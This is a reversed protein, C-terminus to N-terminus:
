PYEAFASPGLAFSVRDRGCRKSHYMAADACELLDSATRADPPYAAVGVSARVPISIGFDAARVSCCFKQAREIAAIKQVGLLLACFEDGGNRGVVDAGPATSARLLSAMRQLVADGTGHGYRDNVQKFRDTDVFWLALQGVGRARATDVARVLHARFARPTLLGTLGDYTADEFYRQREVALALPGAALRALRALVAAAPFGDRSTAGVYAVGLLEHGDVLAFSTASRDGPFAAVGGDRLEARHRNTACRALLSASDALSLRSGEFAGARAGSAHVFALADGDNLCGAFVDVRPEADRMLADLTTFVAEVSIRAAKVLRLAADLIGDDSTEFM